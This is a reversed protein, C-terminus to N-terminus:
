NANPPPNESATKIQVFAVKLQNLGDHLQSEADGLRGELGGVLSGLADIALSADNLRAPQASLHLAALEFLGFAHNAVVVEVPAESLAARLAEMQARAEAEDMEGTEPDDVYAMDAASDM